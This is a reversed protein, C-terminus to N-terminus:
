EEETPPKRISGFKSEYVEIQEKLVKAILRAQEPSVIIAVRDETVLKEQTAEMIEGFFLKFDNFSVEVNMSNSYTSVFNAAQTRTKPREKLKEWDIEVLQDKTDEAM